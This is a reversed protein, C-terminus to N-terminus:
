YIELGNLFKTFEAEYKAFLGQGTSGVVQIAGDKDGYYYGYYTIPIGKVSGEIVLVMVTKGNVTRM